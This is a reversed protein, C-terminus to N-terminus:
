LTIENRRARTSPSILKGPPPLGRKCEHIKLVGRARVNRERTYCCSKGKLGVLAHIQRIGEHRFLIGVALLDDPLAVRGVSHVENLVADDPDGYEALVATFDLHM